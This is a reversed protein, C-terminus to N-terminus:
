NTEDIAALTLDVTEAVLELEDEMFTVYAHKTVGLYGGYSRGESADMIREIEFEFGQNRGKVVRVRQGRIFKFEVKHM